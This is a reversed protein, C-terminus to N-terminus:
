GGDLVKHVYMNQIENWWKLIFELRKCGKTCVQIGLELENKTCEVLDHMWM